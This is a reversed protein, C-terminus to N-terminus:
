AADVVVATSEVRAMPIDVTFTSGEGPVSALHIRGDMLEVLEATIALGLGTGGYRRTTSEDAQTFHKFIDAQREEPIGIGTDRVVLRVAAHTASGDVVEVEVGVEGTETFKIANGVLNLLVQRLRVPDGRLASPAEESVRCSLVLGKRAAVSALLDVAQRIIARLDFDVMELTLRGAEIKSYDLIDNIIALLSLAASRVRELHYRQETWNAM